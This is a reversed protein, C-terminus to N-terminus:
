AVVKSPELQTANYNIIKGTELGHLNGGDSNSPAMEGAFALQKEDNYQQISLAAISARGSKNTSLDALIEQAASLRDDM